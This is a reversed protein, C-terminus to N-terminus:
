DARGATGGGGCRSAPGVREGHYWGGRGERAGGGPLVGDGAMAVAGRRVWARSEKGWHACGSV